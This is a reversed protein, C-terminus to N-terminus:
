PATKILYEWFNDRNICRFNEGYNEIWSQPVKNRCKNYNIEYATLVGDKEEVYDVEAGTYTRWFYSAVQINNGSLFKLREAIIFNEWMAGVDTRMNFPAFNNILCNRVGLDWFLIKDRKSIEKRMNKSFGSLRFLIFSKEMLDIYSNVTEQSMGLSKALENISVESGIQFALLKLLRSIQSSNRINSLELVDKYLYANSLEMLYRKKEEANGYQLVSPYLGFTVLEELRNQIDFISVITKLEQLTIPYLKFTSTRGTLPENETNALDFSSSGTVLIKLDPRNEHIIKLNIGLDPIRQAEDIFLVDYGDILLQMRSYDRSSLVDIYKLEDANICLINDGLQDLLMKALTTKGTQRAGYLIVIKGDSMLSKKLHVMSAREISM